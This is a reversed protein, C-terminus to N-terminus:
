AIEWEFASEWHNSVSGTVDSAFRGSEFDGAPDFEPMAFAGDSVVELAVSIPPVVSGDPPFGDLNVATFSELSTNQLTVISQWNNGGGDVDVQLLTDAGNQVLQLHGSAFLNTTGDWNSLRDTFSLGLVDGFDGTEFDTITVGGTLPLSFLRVTDSGTGSTLIYTGKGETSGSTSGIEVTDDGSGLDLNIVTDTDRVLLRALDNDSGLSGTLHAEELTNYFLEDEGAGGDIIIQEVVADRATWTIWFYDDGLGGILSDKGGGDYELRDDGEEGELIDDGAGGDLRDDGTGGLLHDNGVNGNITDNGGLGFIEDSVQTGDLTESSSTGTIINVGRLRGDDFTTERFNAMGDSGYTTVMYAWDHENFVDNTRIERHGDDFMTEVSLAKGQTGYETKQWAYDLEDNLDFDTFTRTNDDNIVTSNDLEGANTYSRIIEQWDQTDAVDFVQESTSVFLNTTRKLLRGQPDYLEDITSFGASFTVDYERLEYTGDDFYTYARHLYGLPGPASEDPVYHFQQSMWDFQGSHDYRDFEHRGDDLATGVVALKGTSTYESKRTTWEQSSDQDFDEVVKSGDENYTITKDLRGESDLVDRAGTTEDPTFREESVSGDDGVERFLTLEGLLNYSRIQYAWDHEVAQDYDVISYSNDDEIRTVTDLRGMSDRVKEISSWTAYEGQDYDIIVAGGDRLITVRYDTRGLEDFKEYFYREAAVGTADYTYSLRSGDDNIYSIGEYRGLSDFSQTYSAWGKTGNEDIERFIRSGDDNYIVERSLNGDGDYLRILTHWDEADQPDYQSFVNAGSDYYFWSHDLQGNSDRFVMKRSLPAATYDNYFITSSNDDFIVINSEVRGDQLYTADTKYWPNLDNSDIESKSRVSGDPYYKYTTSM